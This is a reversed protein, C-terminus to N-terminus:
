ASKETRNGIRKIGYILAKMVLNVILIALSVVAACEFKSQAEFQNLMLSVPQNSVNALFSVASITMMCNVFFYSAMELLTGKCQPIFVDKIMHLRSVGLTQGVAELNENVKSLSNYMMLYPSSMFHVINVMILIIITGYIFSGNFTLAYSLGLVIGPIAGTTISSMHLLKSAKSRMRATLYATIFAIVTGVLAVCVAIIVSNLLYEDAHLQLAEKINKTTFVFDKSYPKEFAQIGFSAFPLITLLAVAGCFVYAAIKKATPTANKYTRTVFSSNGRDKNLLDIVFALVAPILLLSGYVAGRGFDLRGIVEEYMVVPLTKFKGGVMLPVGYDTIVLAFTSFIVSILPKRLFPLTIATFRRLKSLGLVEAAEYPTNDQYRLVDSLMLFAVPFSYLVSGLVIGWFGYIDVDLDFLRTIIGNKGLLTILGMGNSISPVLMPLTFIIGFLGKLRIDCREMVTALAYALILTIVTSTAAVQLSNLVIKGFNPHSFVANISAMDMHLFMNVLPLFIMIAFVIALSLKVIGVRGGRHRVHIEVSNVTKTM